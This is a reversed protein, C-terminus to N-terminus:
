LKTDGPFGPRNLRQSRFATPSMDAWAWNSADGVMRAWQAEGTSIYTGTSPANQAFAATAIAILIGLTILKKM